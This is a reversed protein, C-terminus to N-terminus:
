SRPKKIVMEKFPIITKYGRSSFYSATTDDGSVLVFDGGWAGLSKIIGAQYDPFLESQIRPQDIVQAILEEHQLMLSDFEDKSRTLVLQEGLGNVTEFIKAQPKSKSRYRAIGLKSNMKQNLYVFYLRDTFPWDLSIPTVLREESSRKQYRIPGSSYACAIDYGSGGFAADLLAFPDVEAWQAMNNILTSSSGLGWERPFELHTTAKTGKLELAFQPNLALCSSLLKRLQEKVPDDTIPDSLRALDFDATFWLAGEHDFSNWQLGHNGTAKVRLEQGKQTPIALAEAGDLVLYEGTLLLKGNSHFSREM